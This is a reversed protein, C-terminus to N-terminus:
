RAQWRFRWPPVRRLEGIRFNFSKANATCEAGHLGIKGGTERQARRAHVLGAAGTCCSERGDCGCHRLTVKQPHTFAPARFADVGDAQAPKEVGRAQQEGFRGALGITQRHGLFGQAVARQRKDHRFHVLIDAEGGSPAQLQGRLRAIGSAQAEYGFAHAAIGGLCSPM